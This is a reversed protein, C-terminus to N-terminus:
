RMISTRCASARFGTINKENGERRQLNMLLGVYVVVPFIIGGIHMPFFALNTVFFGVLAAFLVIKIEDKPQILFTWLISGCFGLYLILGIM